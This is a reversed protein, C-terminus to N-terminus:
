IKEVDRSLRASIKQYAIFVLVIMIGIAWLIHQSTSIIGAVHSYARGSYFGLLAFFLVKPLTIILSMILFKRVPVRVTGITIIGPVPIAPSLKIAVITKRAHTHLLETLRKLRPETLGVYRGYRGVLRHGGFYGLAYWVADASLDALIAIAIIAYINFYGLAAAVGAAATEIPGDFFAVVFFLPYGHAVIWHILTTTTSADM